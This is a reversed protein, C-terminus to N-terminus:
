KNNGFINPAIESLQKEIEIAVDRIEWQAANQLRGAKGYLFDYWAHVNGIINMKTHCANSLVYRSDEKPIKLKLFAEYYEQDEQMAKHFLDEASFWFSQHEDVNIEIKEKCNIMSPPVVYEFDFENCYRQSRQLFDLFAHRLMQMSCTRSFESVQITVTAFRFTALHGNSKLRKLLQKPNSVSSDYCIGAAEAIKLELDQTHDIIEVKM